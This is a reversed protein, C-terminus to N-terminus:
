HHAADGDGKRKEFLIHWTFWVIFVVFGVAGVPHATLWRLSESLTDGADPDVIAIAEPVGFSLLGFAVLWYLFWSRKPAKAM